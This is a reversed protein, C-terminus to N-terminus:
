PIFRCRGFGLARHGSKGLTVLSRQKQKNIGAIRTFYRTQTAPFCGVFFIARSGGRVSVKCVLGAVEVTSM